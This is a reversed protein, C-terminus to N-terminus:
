TQVRQRLAPLTWFARQAEFPGPACARRPRATPRLSARHVVLRDPRESTGRQLVELRVALPDVVQVDVRNRVAIGARLRTRVSRRITSVISSDRAVLGASSASSTKWTASRAPLPFEPTIKECIRRPNAFLRPAASPTVAPASASANRAPLSAPYRATARPGPRPSIRVTIRSIASSASTAADSSGWGSYMRWRTSALPSSASSRVGCSRTKQAVGTDDIGSAGPEDLDHAARRGGVAPRDRGSGNERGLEPDVGDVLLERTEPVARREDDLAVTEIGDRELLLEPPEAVREEDDTVLRRELHVHVGVVRSRSEGRSKSRTM